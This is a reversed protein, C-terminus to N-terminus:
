KQIHLFELFKSAPAGINTISMTMAANKVIVLLHSSGVCGHISLHTFLIHCICVNNRRLSVHLELVHGPM